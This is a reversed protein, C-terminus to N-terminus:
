LKNDTNVLSHAVNSNLLAKLKKNKIRSAGKSYFSPLYEVGKSILMKGLDSNVAEKALRRANKFFSVFRCGGQGHKSRSSKKFDKCLSCIYMM